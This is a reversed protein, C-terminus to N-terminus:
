THEVKHIPNYGQEIQSQADDIMNGHEDFRNVVVVIVINEASTRM